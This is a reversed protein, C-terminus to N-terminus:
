NVFLPDLFRRINFYVVGCWGLVAPAGGPQSKPCGHQEFQRDKGPHATHLSFLIQIARDWHGMGQNM